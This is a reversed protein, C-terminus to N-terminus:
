HVGAVSAEFSQKSSGWLTTSIMMGATRAPLGDIIRFQIFLSEQDEDKTSYKITKLFM